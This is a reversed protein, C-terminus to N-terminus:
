SIQGERRHREEAAQLTRVSRLRTCGGGGVLSTQPVGSEAGSEIPSVATGRSVGVVESASTGKPGEELAPGARSPGRERRWSRGRQGRKSAALRTTM